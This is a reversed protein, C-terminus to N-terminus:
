PTLAAISVVAILALILADEVLAQGDESRLEELRAFSKSAWITLKELMRSVEGRLTEHFGGGAAFHLRSHRTSNTYGLEACGRFPRLDPRTLGKPQHSGPARLAIRPCM